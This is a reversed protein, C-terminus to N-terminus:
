LRDRESRQEGAPAVVRRHRVDRQDPRLGRREQPDRRRDRDRDQPVPEVVDVHDDIARDHVPQQGRSEGAQVEDHHHPDPRQDSVPDAIGDERGGRGHGDRQEELRQATARLIKRVPKDVAVSRRRVLHQGVERLPHGARVREIVYQFPHRRDNRVPGAGCADVHPHPHAILETGDARPRRIRLTSPRDGEGRVVDQRRELDRPGDGDAVAVLQEAREREGLRTVLRGRGRFALEQLVECRLGPQHEAVGPQGRLQLRADVIKSRRSPSEDVSLVLLPALDLAVEVIASLLLEHRERHLEPQQLPQGVIRLTDPLRRRPQLRREAVREVVEAVERAPDVGRQERVLAQRRRELRVFRPLPRWPM